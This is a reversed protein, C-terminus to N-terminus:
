DNSEGALFKQLQNIDRRMEARDTKYAAQYSLHYRNCNGCLYGTRNVRTLEVTHQDTGLRVVAVPSIKKSKCFPCVRYRYRSPWTQM